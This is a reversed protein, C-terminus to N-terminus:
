TAYGEIFVDALLTTATAGTQVEFSIGTTGVDIALPVAVLPVTVIQNAVTTNPVAFLPAVNDHTGNNGVRVVAAVTFATVTRPVVIIARTVWTIGTYVPVVLTSAAAKLDVVAVRWRVMEQNAPRM